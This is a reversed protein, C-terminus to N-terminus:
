EVSVVVVLTWTEYTAEVSGGLGVDRGKQLHCIEVIPLSQGNFKESYDKLWEFQQAQSGVFKYEPYIDM